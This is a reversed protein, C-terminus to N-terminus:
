CFRDFVIQSDISHTLLLAFLVLWVFLLYHWYTTCLEVSLKFRRSVELAHAEDSVVIPTRMRLIMRTWVIMGGAVHLAHVLTLVYFFAVAPNRPDFYGSIIMLRWALFQGVLFALSLAGAIMLSARTKDADGKAVNGRAWQMAVSSLILAATNLWLILPEPFPKWDTALEDHGMRMMYAAFFLGFLSTIVGLFVWLGIRQPPIQERHSEGNEPLPEWSKARFRSVLVLWVLVGTILAGYAVTLSM